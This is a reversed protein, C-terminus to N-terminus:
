LWWARQDKRRAAAAVPYAIREEIEPDGAGWPPLPIQNAEREVAPRSARLGALREAERVRAAAIMADFRAMEAEIREADRRREADSMPAVPIEALRQDIAALGADVMSLRIKTTGECYREALLTIREHILKSVESEFAAAPPPVVAELKALRRELTANM